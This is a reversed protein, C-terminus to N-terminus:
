RTQLGYACKHTFNLEAGRSYDACYGTCSTSNVYLLVASPEPQLAKLDSYLDSDQRLMRTMAGCGGDLSSTELPCHGCIELPIRVPRQTGKEVRLMHLVAHDTKWYGRQESRQTHRGHMTAVCQGSEEPPACRTCLEDM